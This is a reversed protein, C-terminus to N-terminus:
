QCEQKKVMSPLGMNMNELTLCMWRHGDRAYSIMIGQKAEIMENFFFCKELITISIIHYQCVVFGCSYLLVFELVLCYPCTLALILM